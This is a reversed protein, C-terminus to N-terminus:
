GRTASRRVCPTSTACPSARRTSSRGAASRRCANRRSTRLQAPDLEGSELADDPMACDLRNSDGTGRQDVMVIDRERRIGAFASLLPAFGHISGQGPGGAVLFLPDPKAKTSIAPVVAIALRIKAGAPDDPDEPVPLTGCRAETSVLGDLDAIRCPELPILSEAALSQPSLLAGLVFAAMLEARSHNRDSM